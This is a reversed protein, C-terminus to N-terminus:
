GDEEESELEIDSDDWEEPEKGCTPCYDNNKPVTNARCNPCAKFKTTVGKANKIKKGCEGNACKGFNVGKPLMQALTDHPDQKPENHTHEQPTQQIEPIKTVTAQPIQRNDMKVGLDETDVLMEHQHKCSGDECPMKVVAKM